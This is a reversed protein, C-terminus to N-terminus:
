SLDVRLMARLLKAIENQLRPFDDAVVLLRGDCMALQIAILRIRYQDADGQGTIM